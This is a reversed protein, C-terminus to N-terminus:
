AAASPHSAKGDGTGNLLLSSIASPLWSAIEGTSSGTRIEVPLAPRSSISAPPRSALRSYRMSPQGPVPFVVSAKCNM